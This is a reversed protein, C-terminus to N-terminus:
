PVRCVRTQIKSYTVLQGNGPAKLALKQSNKVILFDRFELAISIPFQSGYIQM